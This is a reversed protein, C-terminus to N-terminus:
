RASHSPMEGATVSSCGSDSSAAVDVSATAVPITLM